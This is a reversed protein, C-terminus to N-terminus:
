AKRTRLCPCYANRSGGYGLADKWIQRLRYFAPTRFLKVRPSRNLLSIKMKSTIQINPQIAKDSSAEAWFFEGCAPLLNIRDIPLDDVENILSCGNYLFDSFNFRSGAKGNRCRPSLLLNELM